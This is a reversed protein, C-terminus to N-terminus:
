QGLDAVPLAGGIKVNSLTNVSGDKATVDKTTVTGTVPTISSSVSLVDLDMEFSIADTVSMPGDGDFEGDFTDADIFSEFQNGNADAGTEASISITVEKTTMSLTITEYVKSPCPLGNNNDNASCVEGALEFKAKTSGAVYTPDEGLTGSLSYEGLSIDVTTDGNFQSPDIAVGFDNSTITAKITFKGESYPECDLDGQSNSGTCAVKDAYTESFTLVTPAKAAWGRPCALAVLGGVMIMVKFTRNVTKSKM